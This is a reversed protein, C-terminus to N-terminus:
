RVGSTPQNPDQQYVLAFSQMEFQVGPQGVKLFAFRGDIDVNWEAVVDTLAALDAGHLTQTIESPRRASLFPTLTGTGTIELGMYYFSKRVLSFAVPAFTYYGGINGLDDDAIGELTDLRYFSKNMAFVPGSASDSVWSVPRNWPCWKGPGGIGIEHYDYVMSSPTGASNVTGFYVREADADNFVNTIGAVSRWTPAITATIKQPIGGAYWFVGEPGAWAIWGKGTVVSNANFAGCDQAIQEPYWSSPETNGIQQIRYFGRQTIFYLSEQLVATAMLETPDDNPGANGTLADNAQPNQTYSFRAIPNRNPNDAYIMQFQRVFATGGLNQFAISFLM